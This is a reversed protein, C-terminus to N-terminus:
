LYWSLSEVINEMKKEVALLRRVNFFFLVLFTGYKLQLQGPTLTCGQKMTGRKSLSFLGETNVKKGGFFMSKCQQSETMM